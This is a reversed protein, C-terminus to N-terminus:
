AIRWSSAGRDSRGPMVRVVRLLGFGHQRLGAPSMASGPPLDDRQAYREAPTGGGALQRDNHMWSANLQLDIDGLVRDAFGSTIEAFADRM